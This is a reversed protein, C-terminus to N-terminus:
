SSLEAVRAKADVIEPLERDAEKWINLFGRNEDIAKEKWGSQEYTIGTLWSHVPPNSIPRSISSPCNGSKVGMPACWVFPCVYAAYYMVGVSKGVAIVIVHDVADKAQLVGGLWIQHQDDVHDQRM